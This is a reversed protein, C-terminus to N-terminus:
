DEWLWDSDFVAKGNIEGNKPINGLLCLSQYTLMEHNCIVLCEANELLTVRPTLDIHPLM